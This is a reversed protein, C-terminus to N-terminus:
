LNRLCTEFGSLDELVRDPAHRALEESTSSGTAVAVCRVGAARAATIDHPTDGIVVIDDPQFDRQAVRRGRRIATRLMQPRDAEDSGYAGFSFFRDLGARQLKIRAGAELNGTALGLFCHPDRALAELLAPVCPMVRYGPSRPVEEELAEIYTRAVEASEAASLERRLRTRAVERFIAPDTKGDPKCAAMADSVGFLAQFARNVSRVGAGGSLILTGDVDFLLLKAM